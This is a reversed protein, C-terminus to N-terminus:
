WERATFAQGTTAGLLSCAGIGAGGFPSEWYVGSSIKFSGAGATATGITNIWLDGTSLNQVAMGKRAPNAAMIQQATGGVTVSGSRDTLAAGIAQINLATGGAVGQVSAVDTSPTGATGPIPHQVTQNVGNADKVVLAQPM